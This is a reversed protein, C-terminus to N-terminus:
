LLNAFRIKECWLDQHIDLPTMDQLVQISFMMNKLFDFFYFVDCNKSIYQIYIPYIDFTNM